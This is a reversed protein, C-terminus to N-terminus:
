YDIGKLATIGKQFPHKIEKMETVIDALEFLEPPADRGTLIIHVDPPREQILGIVDQLSVLDLSLAVFIEDLIVLQYTDASIIEKARRLGAQAAAKHEAIPVTDGCIKCFGKGSQEIIVNPAFQKIGDLEGYQWTGKVFQIIYVKWGHGVARLATGLAATTKGKGSGTYIIVLGKEPIRGM